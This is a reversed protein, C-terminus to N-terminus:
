VASSLVEHLRRAVPIEDGEELMYSMISMGRSNSPMEIGPSGEYLLDYVKGPAIKVTKQDWTISMSPAYNSRRTPLRIETSVTDISKVADGIYNLKRLFEEWEAEHDRGNVWMEIAALTGMIEEKGVKMPRGLAHHPAMRKTTWLDTRYGHEM